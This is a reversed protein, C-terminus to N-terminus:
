QGAKTKLKVLKEFAAELTEIALRKAVEVPPSMPRAPIGPHSVSARYVPGAPTMFRLVGGPKKAKITYPKTGFEHFKAYEVNSSVQVTHDGLVRPNGGARTWSMKLRGTDQLPKAGAGGKRRGAITNPSLAPWTPDVPNKFHQDVWSMLRLGIAHLFPAPTLGKRLTAIKEFLGSADIVVGLPKDSM